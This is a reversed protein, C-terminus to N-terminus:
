FVIVDCFLMYESACCTRTNYYPLFRITFFVFGILVEEYERYPCSRIIVACSACGPHRCVAQHRRLIFVIIVIWLQFILLPIHWPLVFSSNDLHFDDRKHMYLYFCAVRTRLYARQSLVPWLLTISIHEYNQIKWPSGSFM